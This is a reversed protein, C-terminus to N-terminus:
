IVQIYFGKNTNLILGQNIYLQLASIWNNAKFFFEVVSSVEQNRLLHQMVEVEDKSLFRYYHSIVESIPKHNRLMHQVVYDDGDYFGIIATKLLYAEELTLVTDIGWDSFGCIFFSDNTIGREKMRQRVDDIGFKMLDLPCLASSQGDARIRINAIM